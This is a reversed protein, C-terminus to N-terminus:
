KEVERVDKLLQYATRTAVTFIRKHLDTKSMALCLEMKRALTEITESALVLPHDWVLDLAECLLWKSYSYADQDEKSGHPDYQCKDYTDLASVIFCLARDNIHM